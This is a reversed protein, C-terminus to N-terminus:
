GVADPPDDEGVLQEAAGEDAVDGGLDIAVRVEVEVADEIRDGLEVVDGPVEVAHAEIARQPQQGLDAHRAATGAHPRQGFGERDGARDGRSIGRTETKCADGGELADDGAEVAGGVWHRVEGIEHHLDGAADGGRHVGAEVLEDEGAAA